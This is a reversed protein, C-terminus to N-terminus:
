RYGEESEKVMAYMCWDLLRGNKEAGRRMIGELHFGAKELVRRSGTNEAFPEAYIRVVDYNAFVHGCVQEVARTM